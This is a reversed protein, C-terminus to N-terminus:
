MQLSLWCHEAESLTPLLMCAHLSYTPLPCPHLVRGCTSQLTQGTSADYLTLSQANQLPTCATAAVTTGTGSGTLVQRGSTVNVLIEICVNGLGSGERVTSWGLCFTGLAHSTCVGIQSPCPHGVAGAHVVASSVAGAAKATAQDLQGWAGIWPLCLAVLVVGAGHLKSRM